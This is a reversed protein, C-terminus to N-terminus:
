FTPTPYFLRDAVISCVNICVWYVVHNNVGECSFYLILLVIHQVATSHCLCVQHLPRSQRQKDSHRWNIV